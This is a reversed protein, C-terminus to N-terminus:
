VIVSLLQYNQQSKKPSRMLVCINTYTTDNTCMYKYLNHITLLKNANTNLKPM